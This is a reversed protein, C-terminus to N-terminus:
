IRRRRSFGLRADHTVPAGAFNSGSIAAKRGGAEHAGRPIVALWSQAIGDSEANGMLVGIRRM